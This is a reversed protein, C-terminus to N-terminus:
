TGSAETRLASLTWMASAFDVAGFLILVPRALGTLVFAIFAVLVFSRTFVSALFFVRAECKAACWYAVGMNFALVGVVRIWVEHTAPYNVIALLLNPALVLIVGLVAVYGGFAKITFASKSMFAGSAQRRFSLLNPGSTLRLAAEDAWGCRGRMFFLIPSNCRLTATTQVILGFGLLM